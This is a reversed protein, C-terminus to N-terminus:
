ILFDLQIIEDIYLGTPEIGSEDISCFGKKMPQNEDISCFRNWEDVFDINWNSNHVKLTVM